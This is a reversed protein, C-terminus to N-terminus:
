LKAGPKRFLVKALDKRGAVKADLACYAELRELDAAEVPAERMAALHKNVEAMQLVPPLGAPIVTRHYRSSLVETGDEVVLLKLRVAVDGVSNIEIQDIITVKEIAM